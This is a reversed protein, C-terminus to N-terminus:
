QILIVVAIFVGGAGGGGLWFSFSLFLSPLEQKQKKVNQEVTFVSELKQGWCM